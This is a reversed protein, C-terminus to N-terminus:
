TVPESRYEDEQYETRCRAVEGDNYTIYFQLSASGLLVSLKFTVDRYKGGDLGRYGKNDLVLRGKKIPHSVTCLEIVSDEEFHTPPPDKECYWLTHKFWERSTGFIQFARIGEVSSTIDKGVKHGEEIRDGKDVLWCMQDKAVYGGWANQAKDRESHKKSDFPIDMRVGYSYRSLRARVTPGHGMEAARESHELGWLTAGRCISSWAGKNQIVQINQDKIKKANELRHHLYKSAGFGGVLLVAKVKLDKEEVEDIQSEVLRVIQNCVHDFITRVCSGSLQIQEDIIGETPNDEVTRLEVSAKKDDGVFNRKVQVDFDLLMKNRYKARIEYYKTDGIKTRVFKEFGRDVFTSGCLDGDNVACQEIELPDSKRIKYSILDVTGGGADCVVFVDDAQLSEGKNAKDRFVALAAAEPESVLTLNTPLGAAQAAQKTYEKATHTWMAPVTIIVKVAYIDKWNNLGHKRIDEEAYSWLMRLYDAAIDRASKKGGLFENSNKDWQAYKHNPELHIKFWRLSSEDNAAEYGWNSPSDNQYSIMTPVKESTPNSYGANPNSWNTILHIQKTGANIAWSVGSYTTGFDIGVVIENM